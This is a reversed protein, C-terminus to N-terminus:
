SRTLCYDTVQRYTQDPRILIQPFHRHHPADPWHQPELAIGAFPALAPCDAMAVPLDPLHAATYVQLGPCTTAIRLTTGDQGTLTAAHVPAVRMKDDLCYNLDLTPDLPVAKTQQFDYPTGALPMQTGTPLNHADTPLYHAADVQLSHGSIDASGDLNWYPHSAINIPTTQDSTATISLRLTTDTIAYQATVVRTGPLGNLGDPLTCTLTVDHPSQDAITWNQAHLGDPGSHLSTRGAENLPMQYAQADIEVRGARVRNAVPGALHGAFAPIRAHDAPDAFGLVLNRRDNAFRVGALTAGQSLVRVRLAESSIDIVQSM